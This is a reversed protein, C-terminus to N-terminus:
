GLLIDRHELAIQGNCKGRCADIKAQLAPSGTGHNPTVSTDLMLRKPATLSAPSINAHRNDLRDLDYADPVHDHACIRLRQRWTVVAQSRGFSHQGWAQIRPCSGDIVLLGHSSAITIRRDDLEEESNCM